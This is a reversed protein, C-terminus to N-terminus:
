GYLGFLDAKSDNSWEPLKYGNKEFWNRIVPREACAIKPHEYVMLVVEPEGDYQTISRVYDAYNELDTIISRFDLTDLYESYTQMFQCKGFKYIYPCDRTCQETLTEYKEKPYCIPKEIFGNMINNKDVFLDGSKYPTGSYIWFPWKISTSVPIQNAKFYRINQFYSIFIKM